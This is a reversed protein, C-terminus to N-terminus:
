LQLPYKNNAQNLDIEDKTDSEYNKKEKSSLSVGERARQLKAAMAKIRQKEVM